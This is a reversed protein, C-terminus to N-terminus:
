NGFAHLYPSDSLRFQGYTHIHKDNQTLGALSDFQGPHQGTCAPIPGLGEHGQVRRDSKTEVWDLQKLHWAYLTLWKFNEVSSVAYLCCVTNNLLYWLHSINLRRFLHEHGLQTWFCSTTLTQLPCWRRRRKRGRGRHQPWSSSSGKLIWPM